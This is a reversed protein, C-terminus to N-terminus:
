HRTRCNQILPIADQTAKFVESTFFKKDQRTLVTNFYKKNGGGGTMKSKWVDDSWYQCAEFKNRLDAKLRWFKMAGDEERALEGRWLLTNLRKAVPYAQDFQAGPEIDILTRELIPIIKSSSCTTSPRRPKAKAKSRSVRQRDLRHGVQEIWSFNLGM